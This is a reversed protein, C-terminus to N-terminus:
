HRSSRTMLVPVRLTLIMPRLVAPTPVCLVRLTLQLGGAVLILIISSEARLITLHWHPLILRLQRLQAESRHLDHTIDRLMEIAGILQCLEM